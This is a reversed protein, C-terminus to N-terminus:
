SYSERGIQYSTYDTCSAPIFIFGLFNIGELENPSVLIWDAVFAASFEAACQIYLFTSYKTSDADMHGLTPHM